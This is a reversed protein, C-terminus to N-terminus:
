NYDGLSTLYNYIESYNVNLVYYYKYTMSGDESVYVKAEEATDSVTFVLESYYVNDVGELKQMNDYHFILYFKSNSPINSTTSRYKKAQPKEKLTKNLLANLFSEETAEDMYNLIKNVQEENKVEAHAGNNYSVWVSTPKNYNINHSVKINAMIITATVVLGILVLTIIAGIKKAM